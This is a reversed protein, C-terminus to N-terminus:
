KMVIIKIVIRVGSIQLFGGHGISAASHELIERLYEGKIKLLYINNNFEDVEHLM